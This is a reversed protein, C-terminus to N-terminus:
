TSAAGNWWGVALPASKVSPKKEVLLRRHLFHVERRPYSQRFGALISQDGSIPSFLDRASTFSARTSDIQGWVTTVRLRMPTPPVFLINSWCKTLSQSVRGINVVQAWLRQRGLIVDPRILGFLAFQLWNNRMRRGLLKLARLPRRMMMTM